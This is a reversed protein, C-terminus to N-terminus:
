NVREMIETMFNATRESLIKSVLLRGEHTSQDITAIRKEVQEIGDLNGRLRDIHARNIASAKAELRALKDSDSM